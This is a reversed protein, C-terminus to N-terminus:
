QIQALRKARKRKRKAEAAEIIPREREMRQREREVRQEAYIAKRAEYGELWEQTRRERKERRRVEEALIPPGLTGLMAAAAALGAIHKVM